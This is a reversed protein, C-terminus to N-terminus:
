LVKTEGGRSMYMFDHVLTAEVSLEHIAIIKWLFRPISALDCRFYKDLIITPNKNDDEDPYSYEKTLFWINEEPHYSVEALPLGLEEPKYCNQM